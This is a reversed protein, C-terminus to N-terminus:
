DSFPDFPKEEVPQSNNTAVVNEGGNFTFENNTIDSILDIELQSLKEGRTNKYLIGEVKKLLEDQQHMPIGNYSYTDRIYIVEKMVGPHIGKSLYYELPIMWTLTDYEENQGAIATVIQAYSDIIKSQDEKQAHFAQSAHRSYQDLLSKHNVSLDMDTFKRIMLVPEQERNLVIVGKTYGDTAKNWGDQNFYNKHGVMGIAFQMLWTNVFYEEEMLVHELFEGNKTQIVQKGDIEVANLGNLLKKLKDHERWNFENAQETM